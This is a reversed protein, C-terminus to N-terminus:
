NNIDDIIAQAYEDPIGAPYDTVNAEQSFTNYAEKEVMYGLNCPNMYAWLICEKAKAAAKIRMGLISGLEGPVAVIKLEGIDYIRYPMDTEVHRSGKDIKRAYSNIGTVLLKVTDFDKETKLKEEFEAKKKIFVDVDVDYVAKYSGKHMRISDTKLDVWPSRKKKIQDVINFAQKEVEDYVNSQRYQKNGMDGANGQAMLVPAKFEEELLDRMKGFLDASLDMFNPGLVTCHHALTCFVAKLEEGKFFGLLHVWKDSFKNKDNRNSYLGDILTKSFKLEVEEGSENLQEYINTSLTDVISTVYDEDIPREFYAGVLPGSHTHTAGVLIDDYALPYGKENVSKVVRNVIEDNVGSVDMSVWVMKKEGVEIVFVSAKIPDNVKEFAHDRQVYGGQWMSHDPTIDLERVVLRM